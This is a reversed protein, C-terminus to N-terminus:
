CVYNEPVHKRKSTLENCSLRGKLYPNHVTWLFRKLGGLDGKGLPVGYASRGRSVRFPDDKAPAVAANALTHINSDARMRSDGEPVGCPRVALLSNGSAESKRRNARKKLCRRAEHVNVKAFGLAPRKAGGATPERRSAGKPRMPTRRPSVGTGSARSRRRTAREKLCRQAEHANEKAFGRHRVSQEEPSHSEGQPM